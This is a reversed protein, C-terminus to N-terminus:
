YVRELFADFHPDFSAIKDIRHHKSLILSSIDTFSLTRGQKPDECNIKIFLDWTETELMETFPLIVAIKGPGWLLNGLHQLM